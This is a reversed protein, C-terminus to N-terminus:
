KRGVQEEDGFEYEYVGKHRKDDEIRKQIDRATSIIDVINLRSPDEVANGNQTFAELVLKRIQRGSFGDTVEFLENLKGRVLLDPYLKLETNLCDNLEGFIDKFIEFRLKLDPLGIYFRMDARDFFARDIAKPLNSTAIIYVNPLKSLIDVQQLVANVARFVDVPNAENLTIARNTLLSEVEDLLCIITRGSNAFEEIQNFAKEVLKPGEGLWQSSLKHANIEIYVTEEEGHDNRLWDAIENALGRSLTTKGTGPPGYLMIIRHQAFLMTSVNIEGIKHMFKSYNLLREKITNDVYIRDWHDRWDDRPLRVIQYFMEKNDEGMEINKDKPSRFKLSFDVSSPRFPTKDFILTMPGIIPLEISIRKKIILGKKKLAKIIESKINALLHSEKRLDVESFPLIVEVIVKEEDKIM